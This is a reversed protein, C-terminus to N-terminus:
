EEQFDAPEWKDMLDPDAGFTEIFEEVEGRRYMEPAVACGIWNLYDSVLDKNAEVVEDPIEEDEFLLLLAEVTWPDRVMRKLNKMGELPEIRLQVFATILGAWTDHFLENKADESLSEIQQRVYEPDDRDAARERVEQLRPNAKEEVITLLAEQVDDNDLDLRSAFQQLREPSMGIM